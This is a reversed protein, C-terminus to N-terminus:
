KVNILKKYYVMPGLYLPYKKECFILNIDKKKCSEDVLPKLIPWHEWLGGSGCFNINKFELLVSMQKISDSLKHISNNIVEIAYPEKGEYAQTLYKAYKGFYNQISSSLYIQNLISERDCINYNNKFENLYYQHNQSGELAMLVAELYKKGFYGGSPTEDFIFGWGGLRFNKKAKVGFLISGTGNISLIGDEGGLFAAHNCLYDPYVEINQKSAAIKNLCNILRKSTTEDSIGAAGILWKIDDNPPFSSATAILLNNKNIIERVQNVLKQCIKSLDKEQLIKINGAPLEIEAIIEENKIVAAKLHTGGWDISVFTTNM